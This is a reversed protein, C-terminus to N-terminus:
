STCILTYDDSTEDFNGRKETYFKSLLVWSGQRGFNEYLKEDSDSFDFPMTHHNEYKDIRIM